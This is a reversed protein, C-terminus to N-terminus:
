SDTTSDSAAHPWDQPGLGCLRHRAQGRGGRVLGRRLLHRRPVKEAYSKVDDSVITLDPDDADDIIPIQRDEDDIEAFQLPHDVWM